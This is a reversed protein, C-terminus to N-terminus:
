VDGFGLPFLEPQYLLKYFNDLDVKRSIQNGQYRLSVEVKMNERDFDNIAFAINKNKPLQYYIKPKYKNVIENYFKSYRAFDEKDELESYVKELDYKISKNFSEKDFYEDSWFESNDNSWGGIVFETGYLDDFRKKTDELLKKFSYWVKGNLIYLNILDQVTIKLYYLNRSKEFKMKELVSNIDNFVVERALESSAVEMEDYWESLFTELLKPYYKKLHIIVSQNQKDNLGDFESYDNGPDIVSMIKILLDKNDNSLDDFISYGDYFDEKVFDIDRFGYDNNQIVEAFYQDDDSLGLFKHFGKTAFLLVISDKRNGKEIVDQVSSDSNIVDYMTASGRLYNRLTQFLESAQAM